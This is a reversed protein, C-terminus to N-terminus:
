LNSPPFVCLLTGWIVIFIGVLWKSKPTSTVSRFAAYLLIQSTIGLTWWGPIVVIAFVSLVCLWVLWDPFPSVSGPTTQWLESFHYHNDYHNEQVISQYINGGTTHEIKKLHVM